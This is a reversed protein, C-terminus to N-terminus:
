RASAVQVDVPLAQAAAWRRARAMAALVAAVRVSVVLELAVQAALALWHARRVRASAVVAPGGPAAFALELSHAALVLRHARQARAPAAVVRDAALPLELALLVAQAAPALRHARQVRAASVAAALPGAAALALWHARQQAPLELRVFVAALALDLALVLAPLVSM